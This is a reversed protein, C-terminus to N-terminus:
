TVLRFHRSALPTFPGLTHDVAQEQLLAFGLGTVQGCSTRTLSHQKTSTQEQGDGDDDRRSDQIECRRDMTVRDRMGYGFRNDRRAIGIGLSGWRM